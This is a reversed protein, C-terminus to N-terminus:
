IRSLFFTELKGKGKVDVSGRPELSFPAALHRAIDQSVHIRNPLSYAELRSAVNVTDGWVDYIFRHAGIIGAVVPGSHVGIRIQLPWGFHCNVRDLREIMGLAMNAIAAFPDPNPDPLGAVAMYADGITKIKEVDLERALEDFESFLRNLYEIIAAPALKASHETFSVLDAFLVSVDEFRDAIMAEGHNLRGIVQRPLITLLLREFKATEDEIRRLYRQERDRWRKKHLCANIRARLLVPDFPKPLYDEAGAEICRVASETEALATIMIVPIRRMREDAKMRVLVDFGNIDPMMLDLLVLDFQDDALAQLAQLGGAVSAVRHGDHSLRRSLLDRNAEIDDVVLISGTETVAYAEQRAPGLSRMLDGVILADTQDPALSTEEGNVSFRVIRDLRLLLDSAAVLLRDLDARLWDSSFNAVDERLMEGYGMIANLPTRLDHRLKQEQVTASDPPTKARDGDLLGEIKGALDRAAGLIRNMDPLIDPRGKRSAEEHMIEAYGLLANVPSLLEQRLHALQIRWGRARDTDIM